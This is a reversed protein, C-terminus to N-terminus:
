QNTSKLYQDLRLRESNPLDLFYVAIEYDQETELESFRLIKALCQISAQGEPLELRLEIIVGASLRKQTKFLIGGASINCTRGEDNFKSDERPNFKNFKLPLEINFRRHIRRDPANIEEVTEPTYGAEKIKAIAEEKTKAYIIAEFDKGTSDKRATYKYAGM